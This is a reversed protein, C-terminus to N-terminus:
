MSKPIEGATCHAAMLASVDDENAIYAGRTEVKGGDASVLKGTEELGEAAIDTLFVSGGEGAIRLATARGIGAAAGTILVVKDAFRTM